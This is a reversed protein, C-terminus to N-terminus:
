SKEQSSILEDLVPLIWTERWLRTAERVAVTFDKNREPWNGPHPWVNPASFQCSDLALHRRLDKLDRLQKKTMAM